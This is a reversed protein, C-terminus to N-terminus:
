DARSNPAASLSHLCSTKRNNRALCEVVKSMFDTLLTREHRSSSHRATNLDSLIPNSIYTTKDCTVLQSEKVFSGENDM